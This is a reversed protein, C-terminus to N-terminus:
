FKNENILATVRERLITSVSRLEEASGEKFNLEDYTIPKGIAVIIKKFPRVPGKVIIAVPLIPAHTKYAFLVAGSKFRGPEGGLKNRTGEPFMTLANGNKVLEIAKKVAESDGKGRNVPFAGFATIIGRLLPNKFLEAKAMFKLDRNLSAGLIVPDFNSLHNSCIIVPGEAPINEVGKREIGFILRIPAAFLMRACKFLTM